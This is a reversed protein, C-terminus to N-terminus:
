LAVDSTRSCVWLPQASAAAKFAELKISTEPMKGDMNPTPTDVVRCDPAAFVMTELGTSLAGAEFKAVIPIPGSNTRWSTRLAAAQATNDMGLDMTVQRRLVAQASKLGANNARYDDDVINNEVKLSWSKVGDLPTAASPLTTATPETVTGTFISFGAFTFRNPYSVSPSGKAINTVMTRGDVDLSMTLIGTKDMKFEVSKVTTGLYTDVAFSGDVLMRALQATLSDFYPGNGLTFNQQYTTGAVVTSSGAGLAWKLVRGFLKALLEFELSGDAAESPRYLSSVPAVAGPYMAESRQDNPKLDLSPNGLYPLWRDLTAPTGFPSEPASIMLQANQYVTM